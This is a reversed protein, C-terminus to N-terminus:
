DSLTGVIGVEELFDRRSAAMQRRRAPERAMSVASAWVLGADGGLAV